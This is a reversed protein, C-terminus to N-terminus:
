MNFLLILVTTSYYSGCLTGDGTSNGAGALAAYSVFALIGAPGNGFGGQVGSGIVSSYAVQKEFAGAGTLSTIVCPIVSVNNCTM